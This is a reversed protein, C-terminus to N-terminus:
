QRSLNRRRPFLTLGTDSELREVLDRNTAELLDWELSSKPVRNAVLVFKWLAPESVMYLNTCYEDDFLDYLVENYEELILVIPGHSLRAATLSGDETLKPAPGGLTSAVNYSINKTILLIVFSYFMSLFAASDPPEAMAQLRQLFCRHDIQM